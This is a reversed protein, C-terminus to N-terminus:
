IRWINRTAMFQAMSRTAMFQAMSRTAMFQAMSRTAMFSRWIVPLWLHAMNRTAM